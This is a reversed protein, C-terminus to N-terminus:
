SSQRTPESIHILSLFYAAAGACATAPLLAFPLVTRFAPVKLAVGVVVVTALGASYKFIEYKEM